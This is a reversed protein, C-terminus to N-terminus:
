FPTPTAAEDHSMSGALADVGEHPIKSLGKLKHRDFPLAVRHILLAAMDKVHRSRMSAPKKILSSLSDVSKISRHERHLVRHIMRYFDSTYPGQYMMALDDSDVWHQKDGLQAKVMDYFKTGPLPYSVSAGIEEPKCRRILDFTMEIDEQTEGPYGFQIFFGVRIGYSKLMKTVAEIDKIKTGKEMADLIKQSGSEVGMWVVECGARALAEVEGDRLLLDARNLCKFPLSVGSSEVHDALKSLWGPKVGFMDDMFWLYEAGFNNVLHTMEEVVNEPSRVNYRQGWIPKACWNCHFPCGRSSVMNIAFYGHKEKWIKRYSEVDVLDWAPMPIQDLHRMVKRRPTEVIKGSGDLYALSQIDSISKEGITELRNMLELLTEEGEGLLVFDAGRELYVEPHDSADSGCLIVTCARKKAMATMTLAAERMRSLCMKTLYNFNDEYLIAYKPKVLELQAEWETESEALMADFFAVEFGVDRMYAMAYLTGLPPYPQQAEKIKPDFNPFYAQGFLLSM